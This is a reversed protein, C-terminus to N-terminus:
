GLPCLSLDSFRTGGWDGAAAFGAPLVGVTQSIAGTYGYGRRAADGAEGAAAQEAVFQQM